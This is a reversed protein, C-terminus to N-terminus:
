SPVLWQDCSGFWSAVSGDCKGVLIEQSSVVAHDCCFENLYLYLGDGGDDDDDDAAAAASDTQLM